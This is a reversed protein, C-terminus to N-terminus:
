VQTAQLARKQERRKKKLEYTDIDDMVKLFLFALEEPQTRRGPFKTTRLMGNDDLCDLEEDHPCYNKKM